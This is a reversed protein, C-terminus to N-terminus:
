FDYFDFDEDFEKLYKYLEDKKFNSIIENFKIKEKETLNKENFLEPLKVSEIEYYDREELIYHKLKDIFGDILQYKLMDNYKKKRKNELKKIRVKIQEIYDTIDSNM